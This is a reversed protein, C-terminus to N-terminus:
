GSVAESSAVHAAAELVAAQEPTLSSIKSENEGCTLNHAVHSVVQRTFEEIIGAIFERPFRILFWAATLREFINGYPNLEKM